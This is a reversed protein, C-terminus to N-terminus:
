PRVRKSQEILVRIRKAKDLLAEENEQLMLLAGIHNGTNLAKILSMLALMIEDQTTMAIEDMLKIAERVPRRKEPYHLFRTEFVTFFDEFAETLENAQKFGEGSKTLLEIAKEIM